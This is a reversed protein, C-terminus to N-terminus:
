GSTRSNDNVADAIDQRIDVERLGQKFSSVSKGISRAVGPLRKGFFLLALLAVVVAVEWHGFTFM